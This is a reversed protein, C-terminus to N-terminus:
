TAVTEPRRKSLRRSVFVCVPIVKVKLISPGKSYTPRRAHLEVGNSVRDNPVATTSTTRRTYTANTQITEYNHAVEDEVMLEDPERYCWAFCSWKNREKPVGGRYIALSESRADVSTASAPTESGCYACTPM